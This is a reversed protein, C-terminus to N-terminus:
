VAINSGLVGNSPDALVVDFRVTPLFSTAGERPDRFREVRVRRHYGAIINKPDTLIAFKAYDVSGSNILDTGSLLPVQKVKIGRFALRTQLNDVVATDGLPTGRDALEDQYADAVAVPVYLGLRSYDRRYRAPLAEVMATFVDTATTIAAADIKQGAPLGSQLQKIIGDLLDLDEDEAGTRATDSKLAIEELDRGVAEAIMAMITDALAGREVNDELSEDSVLVEGRFLVTSLEALGTAPKERKADILRTAETGKHLVRQSLSIRPVEFKPSDSSENRVDPLLTSAEIAMRLFERAQATSLFGGNTGGTLDGTTFTAKALWARLATTM